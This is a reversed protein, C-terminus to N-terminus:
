ESRDSVPTGCNGRGSHTLTRITLIATGYDTRYIGISEGISMHCTLLVAIRVIRVILVGPNCFGRKSRNIKKILEDNTKMEEDEMSGSIIKSNPKKSPKHEISINVKKPKPSVYITEPTNETEFDDM